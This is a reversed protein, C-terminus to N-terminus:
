HFSSFNRHLTSNYIKKKIGYSYNYIENFKEEIFIFYKNETKCEYFEAM